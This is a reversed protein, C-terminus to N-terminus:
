SSRFGSDPIAAKFYATVPQGCGPPLADHKLICQATREVIARGAGM